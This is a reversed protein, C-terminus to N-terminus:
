ERELLWVLMESEGRNAWAFYPILTLSAGIRKVPDSTYIRTKEPWVSRTATARLMPVNLAENWAYTFPMSPRIAIDKLHAGNDVGEACFVIPGRMVAVRGCDEQLAPHARLLRVEMPLDLTITDGASWSHTILAYGNRLTAKYPQGNVQLTYATAWGPIRLGITVESDFGVTLAIKGDYPYGTEMTLTGFRTQAECPMYHHVYVEREDESLAFDAISAITRLLNPPCCSCDFVEKRQLIPMHEKLRPYRENLHFLEPHAELPNEYFYAKGDLSIGALMGNYLALEAVDAYLRKPINLSMRRAFLALGIAACTEAYASRNQLDYDVTFAEGIHSSGIGGTVYMRKHAINDLLADCAELLAEDKDQRALDAMACYLYTARVAHGEATRQERVPLHAQAYAPNNEFIDYTRDKESCGRTNIFYRMLTLFREEHTEEYLKFLALEIEEHGPTDFAASHEVRFVRDVLDVYRILLRLMKDKGTAHKYAIAAELLHGLCYLEHDTYHQFREEPALHGFYSNFYGDEWQHKELKDVLDDIILEVEENEEEELLYAASEIWKAIDSDWFIHPRNPDGEKWAFDWADFRGTDRFRHYVAMLSVKRALERRDFWFGPALKIHEHSVMQYTSM